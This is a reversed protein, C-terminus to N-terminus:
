TPKWAFEGDELAVAEVTSKPKPLPALRHFCMLCVERQDALHKNCPIELYLEHTATPETTTRFVGCPYTKM